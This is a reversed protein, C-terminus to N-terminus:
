WFRQLSAVSFGPLFAACQHCPPFGNFCTFHGVRTSSRDDTSRTHWFGVFCHNVPLNIKAPILIYVVRNYINFRSDLNSAFNNASFLLTTFRHLRRAFLLTDIAICQFSQRIVFRNLSLTSFRDYEHKKRGYRSPWSLIFSPQTQSAMTLRCAIRWM